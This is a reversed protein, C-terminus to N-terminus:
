ESVDAVQVVILLRRSALALEIEQISAESGLIAPSVVGLIVQCQDMAQTIADREPAAGAFHHRAMWCDYGNSPLVRLVREKVFPTDEEAHIVYATAMHDEMM